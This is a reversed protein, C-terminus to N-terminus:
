PKGVESAPSLAFRVTVDPDGAEDFEIRLEEDERRFLGPAL